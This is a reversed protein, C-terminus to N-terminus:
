KKICYQVADLQTLRLYFHDNDREVPGIQDASAKVLSGIVFLLTLLFRTKM